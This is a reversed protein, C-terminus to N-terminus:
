RENTVKWVSAETFYIEKSKRSKLNFHFTREEGVGIEDLFKLKDNWFFLLLETKYGQGNENEVLASQKKWDGKSNTGTILPFIEKVTATISYDM